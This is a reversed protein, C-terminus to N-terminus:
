SAEEVKLGRDPRSAVREMAIMLDEHRISRRGEAASVLAADKWLLDLKAGSWGESMAALVELQLDGRTKYQKRKLALISLRDGLNPLGFEIEWDFRGPRLLASDLEEVRNTAAIVIVNDASSFGDM